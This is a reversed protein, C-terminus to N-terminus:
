RRAEEGGQEPEDLSGALQDVPLGQVIGDPRPEDHAVVARALSATRGNRTTPLWSRTSMSSTPMASLRIARRDTSGPMTTSAGPETPVHQGRDSAQRTGHSRLCRHIDGRPCGAQRGPLRPGTRRGTNRPLSRKPLCAIAPLSVQPSGSHLTSPPRGNPARFSGRVGSMFVIQYHALAFIPDVQIARRMERLAGSDTAECLIMGRFYHQYAEVM